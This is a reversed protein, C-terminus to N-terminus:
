VQLNQVFFRYALMGSKQAIQEISKVEGVTMLGEPIARHKEMSVVEKVATYISVYPLPRYRKFNKKVLEILITFNVLSIVAPSALARKV